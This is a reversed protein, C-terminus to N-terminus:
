KCEAASVPQNTGLLLSSGDAERGWFTAAGKIRFSMSETQFFLRPQPYAAKAIGYNSGTKPIGFLGLVLHNM